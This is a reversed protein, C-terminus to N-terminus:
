EDATAVLVASVERDRGPCCRVCASRATDLDSLLDVSSVCPVIRRRRWRSKAVRSRRALHTRRYLDHLSHHHGCAALLQDFDSDVALRSLIPGRDRAVMRALVGDRRAARHKPCLFSIELAAAGHRSVRAVVAVFLLGRASCILG